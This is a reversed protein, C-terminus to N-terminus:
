ADRHSFNNPPSFKGGTVGRRKANADLEKVERAGKGGRMWEVLRASTSYSAASNSRDVAPPPPMAESKADALKILDTLVVKSETVWKEQRQHSSETNSVQDVDDSGDNDSCGCLDLLEDVLSINRGGEYYAIFLARKGKAMAEWGIEVKLFHLLRHANLTNAWVSDPNCSGWNRFDCGDPKASRKMGAVWGDGGWRRENYSLYQEGNRKTKEDIIYPHWRIEVAQPAAPSSRSRLSSEIKSIANELRKFGVYCWPCALDSTINITVLAM